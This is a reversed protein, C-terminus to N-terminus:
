TGLILMIGVIIIKLQFVFFYFFFQYFDKEKKKTMADDFSAMADFNPQDSFCEDLVKM